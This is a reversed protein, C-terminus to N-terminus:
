SPTSQIGSFGSHLLSFIEEFTDDSANNYQAGLIAVQSKRKFIIASNCIKEPEHHYFFPHGLILLKSSAQDIYNGSVLFPFKLIEQGHAFRLHALEKKMPLYTKLDYPQKKWFHALKKPNVISPAIMTAFEDGQLVRTGLCNKSLLKIELKRAMIFGIGKLYEHLRLNKLVQICLQPSKGLCCLYLQVSRLMLLALGLGQYTEEENMFTTKNGFRTKSFTGIRTGLFNIFTCKDLWKFQVLSLVHDQQLQGHMATVFFCEGYRVIKNMEKLSPTGGVANIGEELFLQHIRKSHILMQDSENEMNEPASHFFGVLVRQRSPLDFTKCLRLVETKGDSQKGVDFQSLHTRSSGNAWKM